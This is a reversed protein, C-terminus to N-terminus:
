VQPQLQPQSRSMSLIISMIIICIILGIIGGIYMNKDSTPCIIPAPCTILAPCTIPAPCTPCTPCSTSSSSPCSTGKIDIELILLKIVRKITNHTSDINPIGYMLINDRMPGSPPINSNAIQKLKDFNDIMVTLLIQLYKKRLDRQTDSLNIPHEDFNSLVQHVESPVINYKNLYSQEEPNIRVNNPLPALTFHEISSVQKVVVLDSIQKKISDYISNLDTEKINTSYSM